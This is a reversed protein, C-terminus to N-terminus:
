KDVSTLSIDEELEKGIHLIWRNITVNGGMRTQRLSEDNLGYKLPYRYIM